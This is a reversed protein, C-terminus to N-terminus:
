RSPFQARPLSGAATGPYLTRLVALRADAVSAISQVVRQYFPLADRRALRSVTEKAWPCLHRELIDALAREWAARVAPNAAAAGTSLLSLFELVTPVFDPLDHADESVTVGFHRYTRLLEEMADRRRPAYVGTYLPAPLRDPVDFLCIYESELQAPGKVDDAPSLLPLSPAWPLESAIAEITAALLGSGAVEALEDTPFSIVEALIAYLRAEAGDFTADPM